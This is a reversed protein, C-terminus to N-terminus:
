VADANEETGALAALLSQAAATSDAATGYEYLLALARLRDFFHIEIGGNKDRKVSAIGFLNLRQIMEASPPEDAMLLQVADNCRGLALQELGQQVAKASNEFHMSEKTTSM